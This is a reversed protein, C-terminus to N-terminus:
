SNSVFFNVFAQASIVVGGPYKEVRLLAKDGSVLYKAHSFVAASLFMDDDPDDCEPHKVGTPNVFVSAVAIFDLINDASDFKYKKELIQAVRKYENFINKSIVLIFKNESWIDLIKGPVGGWFIGSMLVNTDLIM